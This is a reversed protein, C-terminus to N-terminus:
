MMDGDEGVCLWGCDRRIEEFNRTNSIYYGGGL